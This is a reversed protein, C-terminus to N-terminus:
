MLHNRNRSGVRGETEDGESWMGLAGWSVTGPHFLSASM